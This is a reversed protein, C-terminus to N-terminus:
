QKLQFHLTLSEAILQFVVAGKIIGMLAQYNRQNMVGHVRPAAIHVAPQAVGPREWLVVGLSTRTLFRSRYLAAGTPDCHFASVEIHM